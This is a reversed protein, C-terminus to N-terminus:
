ATIRGKYRTHIPCTRGTGCLCKIRSQREVRELFPLLLRRADEKVSRRAARVIEKITKEAM